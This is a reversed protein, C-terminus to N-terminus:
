PKLIKVAITDLSKHHPAKQPKQTKLQTIEQRLSDLQKAQDKNHNTSYIGTGITWLIAIVSLGWTVWTYGRQRKLSVITEERLEYSKFYELGSFTIEAKIDIPKIWSNVRQNKPDISTDYIPKTYNTFEIHKNNKLTELYEVILDIRETTTFWVEQTLFEHTFLDSISTEKKIGAGALKQLIRLYLSKQELTKM